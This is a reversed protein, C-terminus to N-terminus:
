IEPKSDIEKEYVPLVAGPLTMTCGKFPLSSGSREPVVDDEDQLYCGGTDQRKLRHRRPPTTHQHRSTPLLLDANCFCKKLINEYYYIKFALDFM